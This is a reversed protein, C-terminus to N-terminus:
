TLAATVTSGPRATGLLLFSLSRLPGALGLAADTVPSTGDSHLRATLGAATAALTARHVVLGAEAQQLRYWRDGFCTHGTAQDGVPVVVAAAEPLALVTNPRLRAGRLDGTGGTPVLTGRHYRYAGAPIGTVRRVLVYPTVTVPADTSGPLDGPYGAACHALIAALTDAAMPRPLFGNDPSGRLALGDTLRVPSPAPLRVVPGHPAPPPPPVVGPQPGAGAAHLATLLPLRDVVSPPPREEAAATQGPPPGATTATGCTFAGLVGERTPDLGLLWQCAADDFRWHVATDVGLLDGLALAQASLVGVEQCQLRYAFEKYKFGNRWFVAALVVVLEPLRDPPRDLAARLLPRHDGARILDLAHHAADYHYLGDRLAIYAEIPYLGGGSPAPRKLRVGGGHAWEARTVGLLGRLLDGPLLPERWPLVVRGRPPYRKYTPPAASWDIHERRRAALARLYDRAAEGPVADSRTEPAAVRSESM